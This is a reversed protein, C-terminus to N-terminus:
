EGKDTRFSIEKAPFVICQVKRKDIEKDYFRYTLEDMGGEDGGDRESGV